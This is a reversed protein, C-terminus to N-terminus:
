IKQVLGHGFAPPPQQVRKCYGAGRHCLGAHIGVVDVVTFFRFLALSGFKGVLFM